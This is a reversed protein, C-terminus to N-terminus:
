AHIDAAAGKRQKKLAAKMQEFYRYPVLYNGLRAGNDKGHCDSGGTKLLKFRDAIEKLCEIQLHSFRPHIVEIGDLGNEVWFPLYQEIIEFRPHALVALGGAAHILNIIKVPTLQYKPVFAIAKDGIYHYFAEWYNRAFGKEILLDAIHPRGIPGNVAKRQVEELRISVGIQRLIALIRKARKLREFHLRAIYERLQNNRPNFFYGLFHIDDYADQHASFEVGPIVYIGLEQSYQQAIEVASINDHDTISIAWLNRNAALDVIQEPSLVGDSHNSHIHLDIQPRM